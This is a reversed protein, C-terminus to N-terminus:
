RKTLLALPPARESSCVRQCSTGSVACRDCIRAARWFGTHEFFRMYRGSVPNTQGAKAYSAVNTLGHHYWHDPPPAIFPNYGDFSRTAGVVMINCVVLRLKESPATIDMSKMVEVEGAVFVDELCKLPPDPLSNALSLRNQNRHTLFSDHLPNSFGGVRCAADMTWGYRFLIRHLFFM